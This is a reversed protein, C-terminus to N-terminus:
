IISKKGMNNIIFDSLNHSLTLPFTGNGFIMFRLKEKDLREIQKIDLNFLATGLFAFESVSVAWGHPINIQEMINDFSFPIELVKLSDV